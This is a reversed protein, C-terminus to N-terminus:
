SFKRKNKTKRKDNKDRSKIEKLVKQKGQSWGSPLLLNLYVYFCLIVREREKERESEWERVRERERERERVKKREQGM